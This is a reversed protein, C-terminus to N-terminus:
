TCEVQALFEELDCSGEPIVIGDSATTPAQNLAVAKPLREIQIKDTTELAVARELANELERVNGPWRYAELCDLAERLHGCNKQRKKLM